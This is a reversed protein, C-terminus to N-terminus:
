SARTRAQLVAASSLLVLLPEHGRVVEHLQPHVLLRPPQGPLGGLGALAGGRPAGRRRRAPRRM